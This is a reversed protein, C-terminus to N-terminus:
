IKFEDLVLPLPIRSDSKPSWHGGPSEEQAVSPEGDEQVIGSIQFPKAPQHV